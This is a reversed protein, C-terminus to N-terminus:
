SKAPPTPSQPPTPPPPPPPPTPTPTPTPCPGWQHTKSDYCNPRKPDDRRPHFLCRGICAQVADNCGKCKGWLYCWSSATCKNDDYCKDHIACCELICAGEAGDPVGDCGPSDLGFPDYRSIPDNLAYGYFNVGGRFGIPDESIFRGARPDYYRARYYALGVGPEWERGTFSWGGVAAGTLLNGWPDYDRVLLVAGGADTQQRISGLRDRVYYTVGSADQSGLVNDIGPGQFHRTVGATSSREEVVSPGELVYTTAVGGATKSTRIGDKNYGFSAVEAGGQTVSVLRNQADWVFTRTGDSTMNGNSDFTFSKPTGSQSV